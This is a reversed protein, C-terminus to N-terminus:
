RCRRAARDPDHQRQEHQDLDRAEGIDARKGAASDRRGIWGLAAGGECEIRQRAEGGAKESLDRDSCYEVPETARGARGPPHCTKRQDRKAGRSGRQRYPPRWILHLIWAPRAYGNTVSDRPPQDDQAIRSHRRRPMFLRELGAPPVAFFSRPCGALELIRSKRVRYLRWHRISRVLSCRLYADAILTAKIRPTRNIRATFPAATAGAVSGKRGYRVSAVKASDTRTRIPRSSVVRWFRGRDSGCASGALAAGDAGAAARGSASITLKRAISWSFPRRTSKKISLM